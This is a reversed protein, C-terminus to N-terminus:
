SLASGNKGSTNNHIHVSLLKARLEASTNVSKPPTIPKQFGEIGALFRALKSLM